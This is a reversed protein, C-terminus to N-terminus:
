GTVYKIALRKLARFPGSFRFALFLVIRNLLEDQPKPHHVKLGNISKIRLKRERRQFQLLGTSEPVYHATLSRRSRSPTTTELSGHMTMSHWFLVDGKKLAPARCVLNNSRITEIVASKYADHHFAYDIDESNKKMVVRNSRPYVFFRGAGPAIDELAFWGATMKGLTTSDLYYSDQHAWTAPNGEFAMSQVILGPEGLLYRVVKQTNAHTIIALADRRVEPFLRQPLDQVNLVPNLIFGQDSFENEEPNGTTQRYLPGTYRKIETSFHRNVADCLTTDVIGRVVVYGNEDYYSRIDAGSSTDADFYAADNSADVPVAIDSGDPGTVHVIQDNSSIDM